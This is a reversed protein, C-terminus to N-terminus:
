LYFNSNHLNASLPDMYPHLVSWQLPALQGIYRYICDPCTCNCADPRVACVLREGLASKIDPWRRLRQGLM